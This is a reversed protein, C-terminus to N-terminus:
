CEIITCRSCQSFYVRVPGSDMVYISTDILLQNRELAGASKEAETLYRADVGKFTDLLYFRRGLRDWDLAHMISSAMFGRGVGLEVYDGPVRLATRGAWLGVHVRWHWGYDSGVAQVGRAYAAAFAPDTMFDHNHMSVLGDQNYATDTFTAHLQFM